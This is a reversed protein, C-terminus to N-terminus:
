DGRRELWLVDWYRGFKRGVESYTGVPTFGFSKHLAISAENPLTVGGLIRHVDEGRLAAFLREYLLRGLGRGTCEPRLYITTEVSPDYAAKTRFRMSGAYGLVRGAQEAVFLQYRGSDAFQALWPRRTEPTFPELDFTIPTHIVYHNYIETLAALDEARARRLTTDAMAAM